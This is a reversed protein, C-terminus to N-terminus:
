SYDHKPVYHELTIRNEAYTHTCAEDMAEVEQQPLLIECMPGKHLHGETNLM